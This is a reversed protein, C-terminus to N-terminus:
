VMADNPMQTLYTLLWTAKRNWANQGGRFPLRLVTRRAQTCFNSASAM